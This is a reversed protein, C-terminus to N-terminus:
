SVRRLSHSVGDIELSPTPTVRLRLTRGNFIDYSVATGAPEPAFLEPGALTQHLNMGTIKEGSWILSAFEAPKGPPYTALFTVSEPGRTFTGLLKPPSSASDVITARLRLIFSARADAPLSRDVMTDIAPTSSVMLRM